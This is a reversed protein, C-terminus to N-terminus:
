AHPMDPRFRRFPCAATAAAKAARTCIAKSAATPPATGRSPKRATGSPGTMRATNTRRGAKVLGGVAGDAGTWRAAEDSAEGTRPLGCGAPGDSGEATCPGAGAAVAAVMGSQERSVKRSRVGSSCCAQRVRPAAAAAIRPRGRWPPSLAAANESISGSRRAANLTATAARSSRRLPYPRGPSLTRTPQETFNLPLVLHPKPEAARM